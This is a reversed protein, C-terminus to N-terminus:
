GLFPFSLETFNSVYAKDFVVVDAPSIGACVERTRDGSLQVVGTSRAMQNLLSRPICNLLPKLVTVDPLAQKQNIGVPAQSGKELGSKKGCRKM